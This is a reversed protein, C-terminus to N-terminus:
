DGGMTLATWDTTIPLGIRFVVGGGASAVVELSQDKGHLLALRSAMRSTLPEDMPDQPLCPGGSAVEIVLRREEAWAHLEVRGGAARPSVCRSVTQEVLPQLLFSPVSLGWLERPAQVQVQLRPGLRLREIALYAELYDLEAKLTATQEGSRSLVTRLLSSLKLLIQDATEPDTHILAAVANLSNFLFHPSLHMELTRLQAQALESRLRLAVERQERLHRFMQIGEYVGVLGWYYLVYSFHFNQKTVAWVRPLFALRPVYFLPTVAAMMGMGLMTITLSGSLHILWARLSPNRHLPFAKLLALTLLSLLAWGYNRVLTLGTFRLFADSYFPQRMLFLQASLIYFTVLTWGGLYVGIGRIRERLLFPRTRLGRSRLHPPREPM